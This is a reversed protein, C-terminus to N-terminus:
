KKPAIVGKRVLTEYTMISLTGMVGAAFTALFVILWRVPYIKKEPVYAKDVMFKFPVFNEYDIRADETIKQIGFYNRAIQDLQVRQTLFVGAQERLIDLQKQIAAVGRHNNNSLDIALQRTLMETQTTYEVIGMKMITRLSDESKWIEADAFEHVRKTAEFAIRARENRMENQVTDVLAAIENAINAAIVPDKDRVRLEIAGYKTRLAKINGDYEKWLTTLPYKANKPIKYHNMLDYRDIIRERINASGLVQMMREAEEVDGYQLFDAYTNYLVKSITNSKTPFMVVSSEYMPTIFFPSSFIVALVAASLTIILLHKWWRFFFLLINSSDFERNLSKIEM